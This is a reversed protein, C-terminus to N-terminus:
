SCLFSLPSTVRQRAKCHQPLNETSLHLSAAEPLLKEVLVPGCIWDRPHIELVLYVQLVRVRKVLHTSFVYV